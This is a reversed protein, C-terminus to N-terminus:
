RRPHSAVPNEDLHGGLRAAGPRNPRSRRGPRGSSRPASSRRGCAAPIHRPRLGAQSGHGSATSSTGHGRGSASHSPRSRTSRSPRRRRRRRSGARSGKGPGPGPSKMGSGSGARSRTTSLSSRGDARPAGAAHVLQGDPLRGEGPHVAAMSADHQEKTGGPYFHVIGYAV